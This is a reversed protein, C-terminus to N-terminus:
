IKKLFAEIAEWYEEGGPQTSWLARSGHFGDVTPKFQVQKDNMEMEVFLKEVDASERKSSTVFMPKDFTSLMPVLSGKEPSFYDGPSFSVVADVNENEIAVYLSLTSSYSSGWLIVKDGYTGAAYNVAAIIDQEADLFDTPKNNKKANQSTENIAKGIPGGSRQDIALCNFGLENLRQATGEYEFKNFRAQHCLVIVPLGEGAHYYNATVDLSDLSKFTIKQLSLDYLPTLKEKTTSCSGLAIISVLAIVFYYSRSTRKM